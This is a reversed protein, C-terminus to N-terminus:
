IQLVENCCIKDNLRYFSFPKAEQYRMTKNIRLSKHGFLMRILIIIEDEIKLLKYKKNGQLSILRHSIIFLDVWCKIWDKLTPRQYMIGGPSWFNQTKKV